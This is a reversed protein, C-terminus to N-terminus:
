RNWPELLARVTAGPDEARMVASVVACGAAGTAPVHRAREATIGGIAVVPLHTARAVESLRALGIAEGGM